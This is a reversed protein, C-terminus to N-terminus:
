KNKYISPKYFFGHDVVTDPIEEMKKYLCTWSTINQVNLAYDIAFSLSDCQNFLRKIKLSVIRLSDVGADIFDALDDIM